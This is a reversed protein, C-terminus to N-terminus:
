LLIGKSSPTQDARRPDIRTAACLSRALAKFVAEVQHHGDHGYPVQIHLNCRLESAFSELFHTFLSSPIGAILESAWTIQIVAYPRGSLDLTLQALSEDMPVRVDAMRVIGKRDGLAQLFCAGLTLATDEITHHPDIELDGKAQVTLDFMGHVAIQTLMHDFFPLGTHIDAKGSGDLNIAATISTEKTTRTISGTRASSSPIRPPRLALASSVAPDCMQELMAVLTDTDEPKGVSVRIYDKLRGSSYYRLFIGQRILDQQLQKAPRDLVKCLIFNSQSGQVPELYSISALREYLRAREHKIKKVNGALYDLSKLSALAAEKAAVNVNYPQKCNWLATHMWQPFAGYGVRLGALGAWKSFTRLVILNDRHPVEQIFSRKQGLFGGEECFEIYAEDLVVLVPLDIIIELVSRDPLIGDPNNPAALFLLPPKEELVTQQIREFPLDFNDDREIEIIKGNNLLTDFAYMGFTPTINLVTDGPNLVLRLILDLLEDAGAGAFLYEVPVGTYESLANRLARSEPDPYIHPFALNALSTRAAPACGYPNENADLKIIDDTSRGLRGSLVEFPEISQYPPLSQLREIIKM